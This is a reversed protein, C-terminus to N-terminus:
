SKLNGMQPSATAILIHSIRHKGLFSRFQKSTFASGRDSILRVPCSFDDFYKLLSKIAEKCNTTKTPFIKVYKTFADTVLFVYKYGKPTKELPGLHDIHITNFPVNGKDIPHLWGEKKGYKPNYTICKLCNEIHKKVRSRLEPFWYVRLIRAVVKDIGAHGADDHSKAIVNTQMQDPVYFLLRDDVKRYVIGDKLEFFKSKIKKKQLQDRIDKIKADKIQHFMLTQEFSGEELILINLNRSLADVHQMRRAERHVIEYDYCQLELAWRSIKSNLEQKALTQKLPNCDTVITFKIGHLYVRFRKLSYVLAATELEFSHYKSEADTTRKSFYMIPHFLGDDEQKQLLCGGFGLSSADTHLETEATPNYIRLVPETILRGKLTEFAQVQREGFSFPTDKRILDYLPKALISHNPIFRRFFSTLGIFLYLEHVNRPTPFNHVAEIHRNSPKIGLISM